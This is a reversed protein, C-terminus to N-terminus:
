VCPAGECWWRAVKEAALLPLMFALLLEARASAFRSSIFADDNDPPSPTTLRTLIGFSSVPALMPAFMLELLCAWAFRLHAFRVGLNACLM